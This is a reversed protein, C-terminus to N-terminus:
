RFIAKFADDSLGHVFFDSKRIRNGFFRQYNERTRAVASRGGGSVVIFQPSKSRCLQTRKLLYKFEYDAPPLSYGIFIWREADMLLQEAEFWSKQFM